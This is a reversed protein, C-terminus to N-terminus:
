GGSLSPRSGHFVAATLLASTESAQATTHVNLMLKATAASAGSAAVSAQSYASAKPTYPGDAAVQDLSQLLATAKKHLNWLRSHSVTGWQEQPLLTSLKTQLEVLRNAYTVGSSSHASLFANGSGSLGEIYSIESEIKQIPDQRAPAEAITAESTEKNFLDNLKGRFYNLKGRFYNVAKARQRTNKKYFIDPSTHKDLFEKWESDGMMAEHQHANIGDRVINGEPSGLSPRSRKYVDLAWSLRVSNDKFYSRIIAKDDNIKSKEKPKLGLLAGQVKANLEMIFGNRIAKKTSPVSFKSTLVPQLSENFKLKGQEGNILSEAYSKIKKQLTSSERFINSKQEFNHSELAAALLNGIGEIFKTNGANGGCNELLKDIVKKYDSDFTKSRMLQSLLDTNNEFTSRSLKEVLNAIENDSLSM